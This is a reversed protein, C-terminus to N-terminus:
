KIQCSRAFCPLRAIFNDIEKKLDVLLSYLVDLKTNIDKYKKLLAMAVKGNSTKIVSQNLALVWGKHNQKILEECKQREQIIDSITVNANSNEWDKFVSYLADRYLFVKKVAADILDSTKEASSFHEELFTQMQPDLEQIKEKVAVVCANDEEAFVILTNIQSLFIAVILIFIIKKM